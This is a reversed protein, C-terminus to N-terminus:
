RSSISTRTRTSSSSWRVRRVTISPVPWPSRRSAWPAGPRRTWSPRLRRKWSRRIGDNFRVSANASIFRIAMATRWSRFRSIARSRSSNKSLFATTESVPARRTRLRASAKAPAEEADWAVRMGKGGGGASAKIMVPYGIKSSIEVAEDADAILGMHGPVTSVASDEALKKSTIKDGM